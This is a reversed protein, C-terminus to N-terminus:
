RSGPTWRQGNAITYVAREPAYGLTSKKSQGRQEFTCLAGCSPRLFRHARHCGRPETALATFCSSQAILNKLAERYTRM